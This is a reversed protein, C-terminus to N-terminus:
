SNLITEVNSTGIRTCGANIFEIVQELTKIGGSAKILTSPAGQKILKIDHLTAGRIGFGTSTKIFDVECSEAIKSTEIILEDSLLSTEIILKFIMNFKHALEICRHIQYEYPYSSLINGINAVMDVEQAGYENALQIAYLNELGTNMGFPFNIVTGVKIRSKQLLEKALGVHYPKVCVSAVKNKIAIECANKVDTDTNEPKLVSYDLYSAIKQKNM